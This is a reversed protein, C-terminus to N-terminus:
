FGYSFTLFLYLKKEYFEIFNLDSFIAVLDLVPSCLINIPTKEILSFM